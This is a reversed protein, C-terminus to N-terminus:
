RHISYHMQLEFRKLRPLYGEILQQWQDGGDTLHESVIRLYVLNPLHKLLNVLMPRSDWVHINLSTIMSPFSRSVSSNDGIRITLQRLRPTCRFLRLLEPFDLSLASISVSELSKSRITPVVVNSRLRLITWDLKCDILKPMSWLHNLIKQLTSSHYKLTCQSLEFRALLSSFRGRPFSIVDGERNREAHEKNFVVLRENFAFHETRFM